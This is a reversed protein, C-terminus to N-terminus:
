ARSCKGRASRSSRRSVSRRTLVRDDGALRVMGTVQQVLLRRIEAPDEVPEATVNAILAVVPPAITVKELEEEMVEAAPKMLPSHFPASVALPVGKKVGFSRGNALARDIAVKSGSIVIQGPANDNAM